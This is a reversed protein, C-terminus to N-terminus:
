LRRSCCPHMVEGKKLTWKLETLEDAILNDGLLLLFNDKRIYTQAQKVAEAIGQPENQYIYTITAGWAEGLGFHERIEPVGSIFPSCNWNRRDGARNIEGICSQLIPRNAVPILTKPHKLTFPYLRSGKGACLILGKM